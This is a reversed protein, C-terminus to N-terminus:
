MRDNVDARRAATSRWGASVTAGGGTALGVLAFDRVVNRRDVSYSDKFVNGDLFINHAVYRM